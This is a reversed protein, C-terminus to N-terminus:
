HLNEVMFRNQTDQNEWIYGGGISTNPFIDRKDGPTDSPEGLSAKWPLTAEGSLLDVSTAVETTKGFLDTTAFFFWNIIDYGHGRGFSVTNSGHLLYDILRM